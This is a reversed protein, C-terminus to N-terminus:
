EFVLIWNLRILSSIINNKIKKLFLFSIIKIVNQADMRVQPPTRENAIAIRATKIMNYKNEDM